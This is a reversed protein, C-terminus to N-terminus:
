AKLDQQELSNMAPQKQNTLTALIIHANNAADADGAIDHLPIITDPKFEIEELESETKANYLTRLRSILDDTEKLEQRQGTICLCYKCWTAVGDAFFNLKDKRSKLQHLLQEATSIKPTVVYSSQNMFDHKELKVNTNQKDDLYSVKFVTAIEIDKVIPTECIKKM